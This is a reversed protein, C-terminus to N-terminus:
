KKVPTEASATATQAETVAQVMEANRGDAFQMGLIFAVISAILVAIVVDKIHEGRTKNYKKAKPASTEKTTKSMKIGRRGKRSKTQKFQDVSELDEYDM